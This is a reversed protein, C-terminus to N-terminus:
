RHWTDTRNPSESAALKAVNWNGTHNKPGVKRPPHVIQPTRSRGAGSRSRFHRITVIMDNSAVTRHVM